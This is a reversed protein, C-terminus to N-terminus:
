YGPIALNILSYETDVNVRLVTGVTTDWSTAHVLSEVAGAVSKSIAVEEGIVVDTTVTGDTLIPCWGKVQNWFYYNIDVPIVSVGAPAGTITTIPVVIVLNQRNAILTAKSTSNVLAVRIPDHLDVLVATTGAPHSKIRYVHGAGTGANIHLTGDKYFDSTVAGGFTVSVSTAGIATAGVVAINDSNSTMIPSQNVKGAGLAVAGARAYAFTRGDKLVRITDLAEKQEVSQNYIGQTFGQTKLSPFSM